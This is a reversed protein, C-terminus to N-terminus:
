EEKGNIYGFAERATRGTTPDKWFFWGNRKAGCSAEAAASLSLFTDTGISYYDKHVSLVSVGGAKSMGILNAGVPIGDKNFSNNIYTQEIIRRDKTKNGSIVNLAKILENIQLRMTDVQEQLSLPETVAVAKVVQSSPTGLPIKEGM